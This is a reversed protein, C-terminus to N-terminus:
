EDGLAELAEIDQLDQPRGAQRKIAILDPLSVVWAFTTELPVRLARAYVDAFSFPERVFLDIEM